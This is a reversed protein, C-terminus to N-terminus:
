VRECFQSFCSNAEDQGDTRGETQGSPVIRSESSPNEHPKINSYKEFVQRSFELKMLIPCYGTSVHLGIYM